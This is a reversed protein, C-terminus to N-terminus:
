LSFFSVRDGGVDQHSGLLYPVSGWRQSEAAPRAYSVPADGLVARAWSSARPLRFGAEGSSGPLRGCKCIVLSPQMFEGTRKKLWNM